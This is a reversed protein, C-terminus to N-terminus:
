MSILKTRGGMSKNLPLPQVDFWTKNIGRLCRDFEAKIPRLHADIKEGYLLKSDINFMHDGTFIEHRILLSHSGIDYLSTERVLGTLVPSQLIFADPHFAAPVILGRGPMLRGARVIAPAVGLALIGSLFGRRNM